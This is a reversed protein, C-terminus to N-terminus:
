EAAAALPKMEAVAVGLVARPDARGRRLLDLGSAFASTIIAEEEFGLKLLEAELAAIRKEQEATPIANRDDIEAVLAELRAQFGEPDLWALVASIYGEHVGFDKARDEFRVNFPRGREVVLSPKGKKVLGAVYETLGKRVEARPPPASKVKSLSITTEAIARRVVVLATAPDGGSSKMPPVVDLAMTDPVARVFRVIENVLQSLEEHRHQGADRAQLLREINPDRTDKIANIRAQAARSQDLGDFGLGDILLAQARPGEPLKALVDAPIVSEAM